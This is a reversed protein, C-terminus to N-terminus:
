WNSDDNESNGQQQRQRSEYRFKERLLGAPDDPVRRLWQELAQDRESGETGAETAASVDRQEGDGDGDSEQASQAQQGTDEGEPQQAQGAGDAPDEGDPTQKDQGPSQAPEQRSGDQGSADSQGSESPSQEGQEQNDSDQGSSDGQQQDGSEGQQQQDQDGGKDQQQQQEQQQKLLDEVVQRNAQADAREPDRELSADYADLAEELKGQRALANGRNYWDDASDGRAFDQEAAAYDGGQYAAAGARAPDEFLKAASEYDQAQLAQQGQQDRTLWLDDWADARAAQPAPLLLLPLLCAIWGRRFLALVAPLLCLVLLYGQDEWTDATRALAQTDGSGPLTDEALLYRLDSDDLQMRQYRGDAQAATRRLQDEDLGPMVIAGRQDKLFGGDPLPLPAGEATGIGLISLSVGSGRLLDVLADRDADDIGDTLLLLRGGRAGASHLLELALQAAEAPQSGPVPMISPELAPLLNAITPTDDTLPTVVHADGAYAVLATQGERRQELLDRLKQRARDIRTPALDGATMSYSLDLLVVLADRKEHLPQPIKRMSPGALALIAVCWLALLWPTLNRRRGGTEGVLLHQLLAPDVVDQWQGSSRNGRWLALAFLAAPLLVWLWEPRM